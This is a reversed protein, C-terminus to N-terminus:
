QGRDRLWALAGGDGRELAMALAALWERDSGFGVILAHADNRAIRHAALQLEVGKQPILKGLYGVIPGDARALRRLRGAAEPEPVSQDYTDALGDLADGDRAALAGAVRADLESPRGRAVDPDADLLRAAEELAEARPRPHFAAVEVGPPVVRE